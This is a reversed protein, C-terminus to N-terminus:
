CHIFQLKVNALFLISFLKQKTTKLNNTTEKNKKEEVTMYELKIQNFKTETQIESPKIIFENKRAKKQKKKKTRIPFM